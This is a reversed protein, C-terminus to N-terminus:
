ICEAYLQIRESVQDEGMGYRAQDDEEPHAEFGKIERVQADMHAQLVQPLCNKKQIRVSQGRQSYIYVFQAISEFESGTLPIELSEFHSRSLRRSHEYLQDM